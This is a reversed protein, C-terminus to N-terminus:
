PQTLDAHHATWKYLFLALIAIAANLIDLFSFLQQHIRESDYINAEGDVRSAAQIKNWNEALLLM